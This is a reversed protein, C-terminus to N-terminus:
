LDNPSKQFYHGHSEEEQLRILQQSYYHVARRDDARVAQLMKERLTRTAGSERLIKDALREWHERESLSRANKIQLYIDELDTKRGNDLNM